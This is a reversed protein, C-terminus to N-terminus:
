EIKTPHFWDPFKITDERKEKWKLFLNRYKEGSQIPINRVGQEAAKQRMKEQVKSMMKFWRIRGILGKKAEAEASRIPVIMDGSSPFRPAFFIKLENEFSTTENEPVFSINYSLLKTGNKEKKVLTFFIYSNGRNNSKEEM